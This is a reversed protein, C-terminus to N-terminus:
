GLVGALETMASKGQVEARLPTTIADENRLVSSIVAM